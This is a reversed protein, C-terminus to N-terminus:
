TETHMRGDRRRDGGSKTQYLTAVATTATAAVEVNRDRGGEGASVVESRWDDVLSELTTKPERTGESAPTRIV